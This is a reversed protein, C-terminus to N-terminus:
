YIYRSNIDSGVNSAGSAVTSAASAAASTAVSAISAAGNEISNGISSIGSEISSGLDGFLDRHTFRSRRHPGGRPTTFNAGPVTTGVISM